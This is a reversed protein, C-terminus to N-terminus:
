DHRMRILWTGIFKFHLRYVVVNAHRANCHTAIQQLHTATHQLHTAPTNCHTCATCSLNAHRTNCHTATHQLHTEPTNWTHQLHTVTHASPVRRCHTCATCLLNAYRTNCHTATHQLHTEPTNCTHQLTHLRCVVVNAHRVNCHTATLQLILWTVHILGAVSSHAMDCM